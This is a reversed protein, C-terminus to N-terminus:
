ISSGSMAWKALQSVKESLRVVEEPEIKIIEGEENKMPLRDLYGNMM